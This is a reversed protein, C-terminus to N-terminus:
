RKYRETILKGKPGENLINGGFIVVCGVISIVLAFATWQSMYVGFLLLFLGIYIFGNWKSM